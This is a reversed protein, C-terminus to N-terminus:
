DPDQQQPEADLIKEVWRSSGGVWCFVEPVPDCGCGGFPNCRLIRGLGLWSGRVVGFREIAEIAYRSCSPYFRCAPPLLPSIFRRYGQILGILIRKMPEHYRIPVYYGALEGPM